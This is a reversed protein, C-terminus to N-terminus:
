LKPHRQWIALGPTYWSVFELNILNGGYRDPFQKLAGNVRRDESGEALCYTNDFVVLADSALYPLVCEFEALVDMELHSADLLAFRLSSPAISEKLTAPLNQRSDGVVIEVRDGVGAAALNQKAIDVNDQELEFTIVRGRCGADILAQALVITTSGWNTGTEVITEERSRDLHSLLMHYILGWGPYGISAGTKKRAEGISGVGEELTALHRNPLLRRDYDFM